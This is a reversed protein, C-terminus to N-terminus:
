ALTFKYMETFHLNHQPSYIYKKITVSTMIVYIKTINFLNIYKLTTYPITSFFIFIMKHRILLTLKCSQM